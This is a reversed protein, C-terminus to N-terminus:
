VLKLTGAFFISLARFIVNKFRFPRSFTRQVRTMTRADGACTDKEDTKYFKIAAVIYVLDHLKFVSRSNGRPCKLRM